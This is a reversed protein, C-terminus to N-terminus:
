TPEDVSKLLEDPVLADVMMLLRRFEWPVFVRVSGGRLLYGHRRLSAFLLLSVAGIIAAPIMAAAMPYVPLRFYSDLIKGVPSVLGLASLASTSIIGAGLLPWPYRTLRTVGQIEGLGISSEREKRDQRVFLRRNTLIVRTSGSVMAELVKEQEPLGTRLREQESRAEWLAELRKMLDHTLRTMSYAAARTRANKGLKKSLSANDTIRQVAKAAGAVDEPGALMIGNVGDQVVWQQGGAGSTVVPVGNAMFELQAIGLAESRSMIMNVATTRILASKDEESLLGLMSVNPLRGAEERV